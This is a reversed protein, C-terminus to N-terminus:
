IAEFSVAEIGPVVSVYMVLMNYKPSQMNSVLLVDCHKNSIDVCACVTETTKSAASQKENSVWPTLRVLNSVNTIHFCFLSYIIGYPATCLRWRPRVIWQLACSGFLCGEILSDREEATCFKEFMLEM